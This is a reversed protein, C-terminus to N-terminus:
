RRAGKGRITVERVVLITSGVVAGLVLCGWPTLEDVMFIWVKGAVLSLVFSLVGTAVWEGWTWPSM